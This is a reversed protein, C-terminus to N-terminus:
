PVQHVVLDEGVGLAQPVVVAEALGDARGVDDEPEATVIARDGLM